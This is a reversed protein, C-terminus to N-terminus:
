HQRSESVAAEIRALRATVDDFRAGLHETDAEVRQEGPAIFRQAIAGTLIAVFGIGVLMVCVAIIRGTETKPTVDGYGVTTMTTAPWYLGDAVPVKEAEAFGEGGAIATLLALLAAYRLGELSLEGRALQAVRALRLLRVLRLARISQFSASVFPPTVLVIAVDLPHKGLWARRDDLVSLMPGGPEFSV